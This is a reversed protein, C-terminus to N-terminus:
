QPPELRRKNASLQLLRQHSEKVNYMNYISLGGGNKETEYRFRVIFSKTQSTMSTTIMGMGVELQYLATKMESPVSQEWM